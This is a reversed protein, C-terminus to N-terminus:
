GRVHWLPHPRAQLRQTFGAHLIELAETNAAGDKQSIVLEYVTQSYMLPREMTNM